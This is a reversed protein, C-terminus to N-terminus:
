APEGAENCRVQDLPQVPNDFAVGVRGVGKVAYYVAYHKLIVM